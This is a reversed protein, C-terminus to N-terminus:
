RNIANNEVVCLFLSYSRCCVDAGFDRVVHVNPKTESPKEKNKM